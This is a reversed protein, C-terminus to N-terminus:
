PAVYYLNAEAGLNQLEPPAGLDGDTFVVLSGPLDLHRFQALLDGGTVLPLCLIIPEQTNADYLDICWAPMEGNWRSVMTLARGALDISFRQPLAVLPIRFVPRDAM